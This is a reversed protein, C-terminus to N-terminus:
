QAGGPGSVAEKLRQTDMYERVRRIRGGDLEFFFCYDNEYARGSATTARMTHEVIVTNGDAFIRRIEIKVQPFVRYMDEALFKAIPARGTVHHGIGLAISTANNPPALWDADDTFLAGIQAPDRTKFVKWAEIIAVRNQETTM